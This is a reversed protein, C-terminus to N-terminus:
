RTSVWEDRPEQKVVQLGLPAAQPQQARSYAVKRLAVPPQRAPFRERVDQLAGAGRYVAAALCAASVKQFDRGLALPFDRAAVQCKARADSHVADLAVWEDVVAPVLSAPHAEDVYQREQCPGQADKRVDGRTSALQFVDLVARV